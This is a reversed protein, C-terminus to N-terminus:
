VVSIDSTDKWNNPNQGLVASFTLTSSKTLDM